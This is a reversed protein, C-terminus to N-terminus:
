LFFFFILTLSILAAACRRVPISKHASFVQSNSTHSATLRGKVELPWSLGCTKVEKIWDDECEPLLMKHAIWPSIFVLSDLGLVTVYPRGFRLLRGKTMRQSEETRTVLAATTKATPLLREHCGLRASLALVLVRRCFSSTIQLRCFTSSFSPWWLCLHLLLVVWQRPNVIGCQRLVSMHVRCYSLLDDLGSWLCLAGGLLCWSYPYFLKKKKSEHNRAASARAAAGFTPTAWKTQM